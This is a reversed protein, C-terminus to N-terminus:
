RWVRDMTSFFVDGSATQKGQVWSTKDLYEIV